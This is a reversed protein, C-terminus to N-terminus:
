KNGNSNQPYDPQCYEHGLAPALSCCGDTIGMNKLGKDFAWYHSYSGDRLINFADIVDTANSEEALEIYEDLDDIDVVEVMCGVELAAQKSAIGKDYLFDYLEQIAPIDYVGRPMDEFAVSNDAVATEVNSLDDVGLDYKQVLAQVIGVHTKESNQAINQLQMVQINNNINHYDYLNMYVDYALREENGMYAIADKLDQTLTSMPYSNVDIAGGDQAGTGQGNQATTQTLGQMTGRLHEFAQEQTRRREPVIDTEDLYQTLSAATFEGAELLEKVEEPIKIGDKTPDGDEDLSQLLQAMAMVNANEKIQERDAGVLDQPFVYGDAPLASIEGLVLEGIRFRVKNMNRCTFAGDIGTVKDIENDTVCDYDVNQVASDVLYGTVTDSTDSVTAVTDNSSSGCGVLLLTATLASGVLYKKIM